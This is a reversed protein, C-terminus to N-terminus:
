RAALQRAERKAIGQQLLYLDTSTFPLSAFSMGSLDSPTFRAKMVGGESHGVFGQLIHTIEHVLVHALVAARGAPRTCAPCQQLRDYFIVITTGEYPLAYAFAGPFELPDTSNTLRVRIAGAPCSRASRWNINVGAAAFMKSARSEALLGIQPFNEACVTVTRVDLSEGFGVQALAALVLTVLIKM